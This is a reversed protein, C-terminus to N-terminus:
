VTSTPTAPRQCERRERCSRDIQPVSKAHTHSAHARTGAANTPRARTLCALVDLVGARVGLVRACARGRAACRGCTPTWSRHSRRATSRSRRACPGRAPRRYSTACTAAATARQARCLRTWTQHCHHHHTHTHTQTPSCASTTHVRANHQPSTHKDGSVLSTTIGRVRVRWRLSVISSRHVRARARGRVRARARARGCAWVGVGVRGRGRGRGRGRARAGTDSLRAAVKGAPGLQHQIMARRAEACPLPIYLQKPLRRRAAEDLEEANRTPRTHRACPLHTTCEASSAPQPARPPILGAQRGGARVNQAPARRAGPRNTAGVLLVRRESSTPDCGEMQILLETKLRRSSEHEGAHPSHSTHTHTHTHTHHAHTHTHHTHTHTHSM